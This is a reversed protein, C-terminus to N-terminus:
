TSAVTNAATVPEGAPPPKATGLESTRWCSFSASDRPVVTLVPGQVLESFKPTLPGGLNPLAEIPGGLVGPRAATQM